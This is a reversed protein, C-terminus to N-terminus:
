AKAIAKATFAIAGVTLGGIALWNATRISNFLFPPIEDRTYSAGRGTARDTKLDRWNNWGLYAALAACIAATLWDPM